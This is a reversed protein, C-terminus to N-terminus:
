SHKPYFNRRHRFKHNSFRSTEELEWIRYKLTAFVRPSPQHLPELPLLVQSVLTSQSVLSSGSNLLWHWWFFFFFFAFVM